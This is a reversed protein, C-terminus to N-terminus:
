SEVSVVWVSVGERCSARGIESSLLRVLLHWRLAASLLVEQDGPDAPLFQQHREKAKCNQKLNQKRGCEQLLVACGFFPMLLKKWITLACTQVGTVILDRIGVE